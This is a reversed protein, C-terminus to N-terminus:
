KVSSAFLDLLDLLNWLCKLTEPHRGPSKTWLTIKIQVMFLSGGGGVPDIGFRCASQATLCRLWATVILCFDFTM